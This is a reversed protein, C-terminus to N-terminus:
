QNAELQNRLPFLPDLGFVECLEPILKRCQNYYEGFMADGLPVMLLIGGKAQAQNVNQLALPLVEIFEKVQKKRQLILDLVANTDTLVGKLQRENDSTFRSLARIAQRTTRLTATFEKRQTALLDSTAAVNRVFSEILTDHAVLASTLSDASDLADVATDRHSSLERLAAALQDITTGARDANTGIVSSSADLFRAVPAEGKNGGSIGKSFADLANLIEDFDAPTRTRESSIVAGDSLKPGGSYRPTLEVYRDTAVSRSVILAHAHAPVDVDRDLKLTVDVDSGRPDIDTVDGVPVGLVGVDNGVFLGATDAFRVTVTYTDSVSLAAISACLAVGAVIVALIRRSM